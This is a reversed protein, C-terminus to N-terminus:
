QSVQGRRGQTGDPEGSLRRYTELTIDIVTQQDFDSRAKDLAADSMSARLAADGVLRDLADAIGDASHVPVLLGNVGHDVVQRCGRIDTAIIPLGCAAAEMASRPLGERHSALVYVDLAPYIDEVDDRMGLFRVGADRATAMVDSPLSDAKDEDEPGVVVLVAGPHSHRVRDWAEFLEVYGKELVLRGIAGIVVADDGIGLEARIAHRSQDRSDTNFRGLDVGNGLLHVKHEPIRLVRTLTDIDEINQVLEANSCASAMRELAYIPIRKRARDGPLAYLGHVTNVITPVRAAKAAIRGYLGPKPNHTHVIDPKLQRFLRTLEGIALLDRHPAMSRTANVLPVHTVGRAEVAPVFPGPASMGIVEYGADIFASLQPGLLLELSIDATTLHVLRKPRSSTANGNLNDGEGPGDTGGTGDIGSM